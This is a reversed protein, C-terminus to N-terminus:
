RGSSNSPSTATLGCGIRSGSRSSSAIGAYNACGIYRVKGETVLDDLARLTEDIAVNQGAHAGSLPRDRGDEPPPSIGRLGDHDGQALPGM